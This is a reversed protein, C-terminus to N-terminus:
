WHLNNGKNLSLVHGSEPLISRHMVYIKSLPTVVQFSDEEASQKLYTTLLKCCLPFQEWISDVPNVALLHGTESARDTFTTMIVNHKSSVEQILSHLSRHQKPLVMFEDVDRNLWWDSPGLKWNSLRALIDSMRHRPNFVHPARSVNGVGLSRWHELHKNQMHQLAVM